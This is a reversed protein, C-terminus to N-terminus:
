EIMANVSLPQDRAKVKDQGEPKINLTVPQKRV